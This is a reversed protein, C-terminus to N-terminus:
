MIVHMTRRLCDIIIQVSEASDVSPRSCFSLVFTITNYFYTICKICVPHNIKDNNFTKEQIVQLLDVPM